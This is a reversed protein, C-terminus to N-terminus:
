GEFQGADFTELLQRLEPERVRAAAKKRSFWKRRREGAEPFADKTRKVRVPFVAVICPMRNRGGGKTYSYVGVATGTLKGVVGAEEWAERLAASGPTRGAIPWGKPIVWRGTGRTTVLLVETKGERVRYCLAGLQTRVQRKRKHSLPIPRLDAM